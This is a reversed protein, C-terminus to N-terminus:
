ARAKKGLFRTVHSFVEFAMDSGRDQAVGAMCHAAYVGMSRAQSWLRMQFWHPPAEPGWCVCCADGAAFVGEATTQMARDVALGGEPGRAISGPVWSVAPGPDVGIVSIVVDTPIVRGDTLVVELHSDGTASDRQRVDAVEAAYEISLGAALDRREPLAATWKPGVAHGLTAPSQGGNTASSPRAKHTSTGSSATGASAAAQTTSRDGGRGHQLEELLFQAADVDFFADGIHGHRVIWTVDIGKLAQALELAIGGNGVVVARAATQLREALKAVSDTDRLVLVHPSNLLRRPQSGTCICLKDYPLPDQGTVHLVRQGPDIGTAIGQLWRFNPFPMDGLNKEVVTGLPPLYSLYPAHSYRSHPLVWPHLHDCCLHRYKIGQLEEITRTIRAVTNIGQLLCSQAILHEAIPFNSCEPPATARDCLLNHLSVKLVKDVSVLTVTDDPCCLCLEEACCM